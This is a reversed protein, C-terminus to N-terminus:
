DGSAADTVPVPRFAELAAKFTPDDAEDERMQMIRAVEAPDRSWFKAVLAELPMGVSAWKTAADAKQAESRNESDEWVISGASV